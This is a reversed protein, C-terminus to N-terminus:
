TRLQTSLMNMATPWDFASLPNPALLAITMLLVDVFIFFLERKSHGRRGVLRLFYGNLAVLALLAWPWAIQNLPVVFPLFAAVVGLAIWRARIALELGEEKHRDLTEAVRRSVPAEGSTGDPPDNVNFNLLDPTQTM